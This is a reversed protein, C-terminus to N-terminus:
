TCVTPLQKDNFAKILEDLHDRGFQGLDERDLMIRRKTGTDLIIDAFLQDTLNRRIKIKRIHRYEIRNVYSIKSQVVMAPIGLCIITIGIWLNAPDNGRFDKVIILVGYLLIAILSIISITKFWAPQGDNILLCDEEFILEGKHIIFIDKM